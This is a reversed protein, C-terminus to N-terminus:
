ANHRSRPRARRKGPKGHALRHGSERRWRHRHGSARCSAAGPGDTGDGGTSFGYGGSSTNVTNTIIVRTGGGTANSHFRATKYGTAGDLNSVQLRSGADATTGILVNGGTTVLFKDNINSLNAM